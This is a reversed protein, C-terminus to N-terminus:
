QIVIRDFVFTSKLVNCKVKTSGSFSKYAQRLVWSQTSPVYLYYTGPSLTQNLTGEGSSSFSITGVSNMSSDYLTGTPTTSTYDTCNQVDFTWQGSQSANYHNEHCSKLNVTLTGNAYASEASVFATSFDTGSITFPCNFYLTVVDGDAVPTQHIYGGEPGGNFGTLSTMPYQGNVRFMWGDVPIRGEGNGINAFFLYSYSKTGSKISSIFTDSTTLAQGSTNCIQIGTALDNYARLVDLVTYSTKGTLTVEQITNIISLDTQSYARSEIALQVKIQDSASYAPITRSSILYYGVGADAFAPVAMVITMAITMLLVIAKRSIKRVIEGKKREGAPTRSTIVIQTRISGSLRRAKVLGNTM